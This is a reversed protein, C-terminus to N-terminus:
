ILGRMFAAYRWGIYVDGGFPRDLLLAQLEGADEPPLQDTISQIDQVSFMGRYLGDLKVIPLGMKLLTSANQHIQSGVMFVQTLHSVVVRRVLDPDVTEDAKLDSQALDVIGKLDTVAIRESLHSGDLRLSTDKPVQLSRFLHQQRLEKIVKKVSFRKWATISSQRSRRIAEDILADDSQLRKLFESTGYLSRFESPATSCRRLTKSLELEGNKIVKPRIDSNRYQRWFRIFRKHTLITNSVSLCFSGLHHVTEFNETSGLVETKSSMMAKVFEDIRDSVCYVSDNVIMMRPCAEHLNKRLIYDFGAKYSGFDRGFNFREIYCDFLDRYDDPANLKLTNVAIVYCGNAKLSKLLVETDPRLRGKQYLAVLAIPQTQYSTDWHIKPKRGISELAVLFSKISLALYILPYSTWIFSFNFIQGIIRM